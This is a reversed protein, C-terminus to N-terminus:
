GDHCILAPKQGFRNFVDEGTIRRAYLEQPAAQKALKGTMAILEDNRRQKLIDFRQQSVATVVEVQSGELQDIL